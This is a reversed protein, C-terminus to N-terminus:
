RLRLLVARFQVPNLQHSAQRSSNIIRRHFLTILSPLPPHVRCCRLSSIVLSSDTCRSLCLLLGCVESSPSSSPISSPQASPISSPQTSLSHYTLCVVRFTRYLLLLFSHSSSIARTYRPHHLAVLSQVPNPQHSALPSDNISLLRAIILRQLLLLNHRQETNSHSM